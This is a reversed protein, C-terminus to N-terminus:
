PCMSVVGFVGLASNIYGAAVECCGHCETQVEVQEVDNSVLGCSYQLSPFPQCTSWALETHLATNCPIVLLM